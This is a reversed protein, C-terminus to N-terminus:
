YYELIMAESEDSIGNGNSDIISNIIFSSVSSMNASVVKVQGLYAATETVRFKKTSSIGADLSNATYSSNGNIVTWYYDLDDNDGIDYGYAKLELEGPGDVTGSFFGESESVSGGSYMYNTVFIVPPVDEIVISINATASNDLKDSVDLSYQYLGDELLVSPKKDNSVLDTANYWEYEIDREDLLADFVDIDLNTNQGEVGHFTFPGTILPTSETITINKLDTFTNGYCDMVTLSINYVGSDSFSHLPSKENSYTGDGFLWFYKYEMLTTDEDTIDLNSTFQIARDELTENSFDSISYYPSSGVIEIVKGVKACSTGDDAVLTILYSGETNFVNNGYFVTKDNSSMEYDIDLGIDEEGQGFDAHTKSWSYRAELKQLYLDFSGTSSNWANVLVKVTYNDSLFNIDTFVYSGNYFTSNDTSITKYEYWSAGTFNYINLSVNQSVSTKLSHVIECSKFNDKLEDLSLNFTENVYNPAYLNDGITYNSDWSEGWADYYTYFGSGAWYGNYFMSTTLNDANNGFRFNYPGYEVGDIFIRMTDPNLGMYGGSSCEFDLRIHYWTNVSIGRINEHGSSEEHTIHGANIGIQPGAGGGGSFYINAGYSSTTTRWWWEITGSTQVDFYHYITNFGATSGDYAELVKKHGDKSSIVKIYSSGQNSVSDVFEIDTGSTEDPENHFDYTASYENTDTSQFTSYDGEVVDISSNWKSSRFSFPIFQYEIVFKDLYFQFESSQNEGDIKVYIDFNSNFFDSFKIDQSGNFFSTHVSSEVTYWSTSTFNYISINVLQSINTKFSYNLFLSKISDGPLIEELNFYTDFALVSSNSNFLVYDNDQALLDGDSEMTGNLVLLDTSMNAIERYISDVQFSGKTWEYQLKIQNLFFKFVSSNKGSFKVKLEFNENYFDSCDISYTCNDFETYSSSNMTSYSQSSYNYLQLDITQSVNTKYSYHLVISIIEDDPRIGDMEFNSTLEL